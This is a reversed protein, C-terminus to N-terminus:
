LGEVTYRRELHATRVGWPSSGARAQHARFADADRFRESVQWVLAGDSRDVDFALCGAEARTLTIHAPLLEAVLAMDDGNRCVLEGSLRVEGM